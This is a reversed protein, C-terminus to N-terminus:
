ENKINKKIFIKNVQMKLYFLLKKSYFVPRLFKRIYNLLYSLFSLIKDIVLLYKKRLFLYYVLYGLILFVIFLQPIYGSALLYTYTYTIYITILIFLLDFFINLFRKKIFKSKILIYLDWTSFFLISFAIINVIIKIELNIM